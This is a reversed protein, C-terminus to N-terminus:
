GQEAGLDFELRLAEITKMSLYLHRPNDLLPTFGYKLYFRAAAENLADVEVAYVGAQRGIQETRWLAHMLLLEGLGTGKHGNDVALRGLLVVPVPFHPPLNRTAPLNEFAIKGTALTYYGMVFPEDDEVAVFTRGIRREGHQMALRQIYNNLSPEGCDFGSRDHARSLPEILIPM